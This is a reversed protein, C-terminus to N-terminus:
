KNRHNRKVKELAFWDMMQANLNQESTTDKLLAEYTMQKTELCFQMLIWAQYYSRPSITSDSWHFAWDNPAAKEQELKRAMNTYLDLQEKNRRAIYEPYGEWKWEPYQALPNSNWLGFAKFQLCHVMEHSLLQALNWHYGNLEVRNEKSNAKGLLVVKDYFGWAFAQGRIKEMLLPYLSGDNLCIDLNLQPDFHKSTKLLEAASNLQQVFAPDLPADHYVKFSGINTKNAYLFSPNLVIGLLFGLCLLGTALLRIVWKRINM